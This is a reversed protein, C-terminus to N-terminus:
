VFVECSKTTIGSYEELVQWLRERDVKDYAKELYVCAMVM